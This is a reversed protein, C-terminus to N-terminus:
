GRFIVHLLQGLKWYFGDKRIYEEAQYLEDYHQPDNLIEPPVLDAFVRVGATELITCQKEHIWHVVEDPDLPRVKEQELLSQVPTGPETVTKLLDGTNGQHAFRLTKGRAGGVVLSVLAKQRKAIDAIGEIFAQPNETWNAVAHSIILDAKFRDPENFAVFAEGHTRQVRNSDIGLEQRLQESQELLQKSPEILHASLEPYEKLLLLTVPAKGAGIDLIHRITPHALLVNRLDDLLQEQRMRGLPNGYIINIFGQGKEAFYMTSPRSDTSNEAM